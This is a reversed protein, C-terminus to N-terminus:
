FPLEADRRQREEYEALNFNPDAKCPRHKHEHEAQIGLVDKYCAQWTKSTVLYLAYNPDYHWCDWHGPANGGCEANVSSYQEILLFLGGSKDNIWEAMTRAEEYAELNNDEHMSVLWLKDPIALIADLSLRITEM